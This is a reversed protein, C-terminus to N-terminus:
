LFVVILPFRKYSFRTKVAFYIFVALFILNSFTSWPEVLLRSMDTERYIPGQDNPEVKRISALVAM